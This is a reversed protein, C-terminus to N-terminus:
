KEGGHHFTYLDFNWGYVGGNYATAEKLNLLGQLKCYGINYIRDYTERIENRTIKKM